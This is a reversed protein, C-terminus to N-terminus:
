FHLSKELFTILCSLRTITKLKLIMFNFIHNLINLIATKYKPKNELPYM